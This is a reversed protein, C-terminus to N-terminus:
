LCLGSVFIYITIKYPLIVRTDISSRVVIFFQWPCYKYSLTPFSCSVPSLQMVLPKKSILELLQRNSKPYIYYLLAFHTVIYSVHPILDSTCVCFQLPLPSLFLFSRSRSITPSVYNINFLIPYTITCYVWVSWCVIWHSPKNFVAFPKRSILFPTSNM